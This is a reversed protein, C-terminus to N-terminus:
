PTVWISRFKQKESPCQKCAIGDIKRGGDDSLLLLDTRPAPPAVVAEPNLGAFDVQTQLVPDDKAAGSWRYLASKGGDNVPGAVIFYAQHAPAFDISRIGLNGLKLRIPPGFQAKIGGNLIEAPNELPILLAKENLVPNRFGILLRGDPMAVLGEINLGELSEPAHKAREAFHFEAFRGDANLDEVLSRYPTGVPTLQIHGNTISIDTAFFRRRNPRPKGERNAGHSTIWYIRDKVGTAAEIDAEKHPDTPLIGLHENWNFKAVPEGSTDLLYVRLVNDEDSAVVFHNATILVSASADCMGLYERPTPAPSPSLSM